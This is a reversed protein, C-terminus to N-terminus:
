AAKEINDGLSALYESQAKIFAEQEAHPDDAMKEILEFKQVLEKPTNTETKTIVASPLSELTETPTQTVAETPVTVPKIVETPIKVTQKELQATEANQKALVEGYTPPDQPSESTNPNVGPVINEPKNNQPPM